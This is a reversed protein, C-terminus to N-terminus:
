LQLAENQVYKKGFSTFSQLHMQAMARIQLIEDVIKYGQSVQAQYIQELFHVKEKEGLNKEVEM